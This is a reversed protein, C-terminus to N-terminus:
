WMEELSIQASRDRDESAQPMHHVKSRKSNEITVEKHAKKIAENYSLGRKTYLNTRKDIEKWVDDPGDSEECYRYLGRATDVVYLSFYEKPIPM